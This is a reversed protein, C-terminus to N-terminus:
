SKKSVEDCASTVLTVTARNLAAMSLIRTSDLLPLPTLETDLLIPLETCCLGIADCGEGRLRDAVNLIYSRAESTFRGQVMESFILRDIAEREQEQPITSEIGFEAFRAPYVASETLLRTGLLAVKRYGLRKAELAVEKAIHLWPLPSRPEVLEFACHITNCPAILFQAGISALKEASSLMLEAVGEWDGAEIRRMYESLPHSHMSVQPSSRARSTM